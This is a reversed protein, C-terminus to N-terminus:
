QLMCADIKRGPRRKEVRVLWSAEDRYWNRTWLPKDCADHGWLNQVGVIIKRITPRRANPAPFSLWSAPLMALIWSADAPVTISRVM